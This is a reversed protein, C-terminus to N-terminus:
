KEAANTGFAGETSPELEMTPVEIKGSSFYTWIMLSMVMLAKQKPTFSKVVDTAHGQIM